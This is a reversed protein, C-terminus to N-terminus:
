AACCPLASTATSVGGSRECAPRPRWRCVSCRSVTTQASALRDDLSSVSLFLSLSLSPPPLVCAVAALAARPAGKRVSEGSPDADFVAAARGCRGLVAARARLGGASACVEAAAAGRRAGERAPRLGRRLLGASHRGSAPGDLLSLSIFFALAAPHVICPETLLLADVPAVDPLAADRAEVGPVGSLPEMRLLTSLLAKLASAWRNHLANAASSRRPSRM